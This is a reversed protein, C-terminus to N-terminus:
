KVLEPRRAPRRRTIYVNAFNQGGYLVNEDQVDLIELGKKGPRKFVIDVVDKRFITAIEKKMDDITRYSNHGDDIYENTEFNYVHYQVFFYFEESM